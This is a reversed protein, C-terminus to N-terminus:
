QRKSLDPGIFRSMFVVPFTNSNVTQLLDSDSTKYVKGKGKDFM